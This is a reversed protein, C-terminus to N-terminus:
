NSYGPTIKVNITDLTLLIDPYDSTITDSFSIVLCKLGTPDAIIDSNYDIKINGEFLDEFFEQWAELHSNYITITQISMMTTSIRDDFYTKLPYTGFGSIEQEGDVNKLKILNFTLQSGQVLINPQLFVVDGEEQGLIVAGSEYTYSQDIFYSNTSSYKLAGISYDNPWGLSDTFVIRFDDSAVKIAGYSRSSSFFPMEKSGLTIPATIVTNKVSAASLTDVAFKLQSFQRAVEDMHEAEKQSMWMPVYVVQVFSIASIVLGIMLLAIVVGAVGENSNKIEKLKIRKM